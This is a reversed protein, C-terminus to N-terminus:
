QVKRCGNRSSKNWPKVATAEATNIKNAKAPKRFSATPTFTGTPIAGRIKTESPELSPHTEYHKKKIPSSLRGFTSM